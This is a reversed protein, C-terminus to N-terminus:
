IKKSFIFMDFDDDNDGKFKLYDNYVVYINTSFPIFTIDRQIFIQNLHELINVETRAGETVCLINRKNM